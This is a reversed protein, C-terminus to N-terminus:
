PRKNENEKVNPAAQVAVLKENSPTVMEKLNQQHLHQGPVPPADLDLCLTVTAKGAESELSLRAKKGAQWLNKFRSM